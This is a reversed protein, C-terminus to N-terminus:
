PVASLDVSLLELTTSEDQQNLVYNVVFAVNPNNGSIAAATFFGKSGEFTGENGSLVSANWLGAGARHAIVADLSTSDHYVVFLQDTGNVASGFIQADGGVEHPVPNGGEDKVGLDVTEILFQGGSVNASGFYILSGDSSDITVHHFGDAADVFLSSHLGAGPLLDTVSGPLSNFDDAANSQVRKFSGAVSDHYTIRTRGDARLQMSTFLGTGKPIDVLDAPVPAIATTSDVILPNQWDASAQPLASSAKVFRLQSTGAVDVAMYSIQPTGDAGIIIDTYRGVDGSDADVTMSIIQAGSRDVRAYKLNRNTVDLYAIHANGQGDVTVSAHQGVDEGPDRIGGRVGNPDGVVPGEPVGDVFVFTDLATISGAAPTTRSLVLDGFTTNYSVVVADEGDAAVDAFRGSDGNEIVVAGCQCQGTGQVDCFPAEGAGCSLSACQSDLSCPLAGGCACGQAFAVVSVLMLSALARRRRLVVVGALGLLGLLLAGNNSDDAPNVACAAAVVNLETLVRDISANAEHGAADQVRVEVTLAGGLVEAPIRGDAPIALWDSGDARYQAVLRARPTGVDSFDALVAGDVLSLGLTPATADILVPVEVSELALSGRQGIQRARVEVKHEGQLLFRPDRIVPNADQTFTSWLGGDVRYQWELAGEPHEGGLSLQVGPWEEASLSHTLAFTDPLAVRELKAKTTAPLVQFRKAGTAAPDFNLGAFLGLFDEQGIAGLDAQVRQFSTSNLDISFGFVAPPAIPGIANGLLPLAVGLLIPIIGAIAQPDESLLESNTITVELGALQATDLLPIITGGVPDVDIDVGLGFSTAATFLRVPRDDVLAYIDIELQEFGLNLLPDGAAGAGISIDLPNQPRLQIALPLKVNPSRALKGVSPILAGLTQSSLLDAGIVESGVSICLLGSNFLHFGFNDLFAESVGLGIDYPTGAEPILNQAFESTRELFREGAVLQSPVGPLPLPLTRVCPNPTSRGDAANGPTLDSNVGTRLGLSLGRQDAAGLNNLSAESKVYGGAVVSLELNGNLNIPLGLGAFLDGINIIGEIGPPNPLADTIFGGLLDVLQDEFLGAILDFLGIILDEGFDATGCQFGVSGRNEEFIEIDFNGVIDALNVANVAVALQRQANISLGLTVDVDLDRAAIVVDCTSGAGFPNIDIDVNVRGDACDCQVGTCESVPPELVCSGSVQDAAGNGLDLRLVARLLPNGAGDQDLTFTPNKVKLSLPCGPTGDSCTLAPGDIPDSPCLNNILPIGPDIDQPLCISDGLLGSIIATLNQEIFDFGQNTVRVQIGNELITERPLPAPLPEIGGTLACGGGCGPQTLAFLAAGSLASRVWRREPRKM